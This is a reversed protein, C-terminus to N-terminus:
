IANASLINLVEVTTVVVLLMFVYPMLLVIWAIQTSGYTCILQLLWMWLLGFVAKIFLVAVTFNQFLGFVLTLILIVLYVKAPWCLFEATSSSM